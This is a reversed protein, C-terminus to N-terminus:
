SNAGGRSVRNPPPEYLGFSRMTGVTKGFKELKDFISVFRIDDLEIKETFGGCVDVKVDERTFRVLADIGDDTYCFAMRVCLMNDGSRGTLKRRFKFATDIDPVDTTLYTALLARFDADYEFAPTSMQIYHLGPIGTDYFTYTKWWGCWILARRGERFVDRIAALIDALMMPNRAFYRVGAALLILIWLM